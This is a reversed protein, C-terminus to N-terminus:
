EWIPVLHLIKLTLEPLLVNRLVIYIYSMDLLYNLSLKWYLKKTSQNGSLIAWDIKDL